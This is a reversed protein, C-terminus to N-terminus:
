LPPLKTDKPTKGDWRRVFQMVTADNNESKSSPTVFFIVVAPLDGEARQEIKDAIANALTGVAFPEDELTTGDSAIRSILLETKRAVGLDTTVDAVHRCDWLVVEEAPETMVGDRRNGIVVMKDLRDGGYAIDKAFMGSSEM